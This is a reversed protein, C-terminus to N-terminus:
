PRLNLKTTARHRKSLWWGAEVPWGSFDAPDGLQAAAHLPWNPDDLLERAIAVMDARGEAVVDNAYSADWIMGVTACAIDAERRVQEALPVQYGQGLPFSVRRDGGIGGSTCDIMDVGADKLLKALEVTEEVTWGDDLWDTASLRFILPLEDPWETRIRQATEVVARTRGEFGGGYADTRVNAIPSYFQHLLFGHGAYVELAKFGADRARAATAAFGALMQEIDAATMEAPVHWGEGYALASPAVTPWAPEGRETADEDTLPGERHWPRRESAKRGAHGIQIAPVSGNASVFSAVRALPEVHEDNWLGLDGPTRRGREEIATAEVMVMGAGGLAFRGLHVLHWDTAVGGVAAYQSMPSVIIRNPVTVGRLTFPDFLPASTGTVVRVSGLPNRESSISRGVMLLM